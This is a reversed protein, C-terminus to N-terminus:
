KNEQFFIKYIEFILGIEKIPIDKKIIDNTKDDIYNFGNFTINNLDVVYKQINDTDIPINENHMISSQVSHNGNYTYFLNLPSIETLLMNSKIFVFPNNLNKGIGALTCELRESNWVMTCLLMENSNIVQNDNYKICTYNPISSDFNCFKWKNEPNSIIAFLNKNNITQVLPTIIAKYVDMSKEYNDEKINIKTNRAFKLYNNFFIKWEREKKLNRYKFM